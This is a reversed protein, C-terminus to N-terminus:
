ASREIAALLADEADFARRMSRHLREEEVNADASGPITQSWIAYQRTWDTVAQRHEEILEQPTM